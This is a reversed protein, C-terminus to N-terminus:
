DVMWGAKAAAEFSEFTETPVGELQPRLEGDVLDYLGKMYVVAKGEDVMLGMKPFKGPERDNYNKVPLIPWLPWRMPDQMMRVDESNETSM